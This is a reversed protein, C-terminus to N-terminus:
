VGPGLISGRTALGGSGLGGGAAGVLWGVDGVATGAFFRHGFQPVITLASLKNQKKQPFGNRHNRPGLM